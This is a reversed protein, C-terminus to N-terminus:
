LKVYCITYVMKNGSRHVKFCFWVKIRNVWSNNIQTFIYPTNHFGYFPFLMKNKGEPTVYEPYLVGEKYMIGESNSEETYSHIKLIKNNHSTFSPGMINFSRIKTKAKLLSDKSINFDSKSFKSTGSGNQPQEKGSSLFDIEKYNERSKM